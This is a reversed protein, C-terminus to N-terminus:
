QAAAGEWTLELLMGRKEQPSVRPIPVMDWGRFGIGHLIEQAKRIHAFSFRELSAFYRVTLGAQWWVPRNSAFRVAEEGTFSYVLYEEPTKGGVKQAEEWFSVVGLPYLGEDLAEQIKQALEEM